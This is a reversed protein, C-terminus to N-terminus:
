RHWPLRGVAMIGDGPLLPAAHRAYRPMGGCGRRTGRPPHTMNVVPLFAAGGEWIFTAYHVRVGAAHQRVRLPYGAAPASADAPRTYKYLYVEFPAGM